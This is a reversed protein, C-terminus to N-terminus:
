ERMRVTFILFFELAVAVAPASKDKVCTLCDAGATATGSIENNKLRNAPLNGIFLYSVLDTFCLMLPTECFFLRQMEEFGDVGFVLLRGPDDQFNEIETINWLDICDV